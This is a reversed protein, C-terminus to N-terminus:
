WTGNQSMIVSEIHVLSWGPTCKEYDMENNGKMSCQYKESFYNKKDFSYM